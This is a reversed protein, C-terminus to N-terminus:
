NLTWETTFSQVQRQWKAPDGGGFLANRDARAAKTVKLDLDFEDV